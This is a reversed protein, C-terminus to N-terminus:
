STQDYIQKAQLASHSVIHFPNHEIMERMLFVDNERTIVPTTRKHEYVGDYNDRTQTFRSYTLGPRVSETWYNPRDIYDSRKPGGKRLQGGRTSMAFNKISQLSAIGFNGRWDYGPSWRVTEFVGQNGRKQKQSEFFLPDEIRSLYSEMGGRGNRNGFRAQQMVPTTENMLENGRKSYSQVYAPLEPIEFEDFGPSSITAMTM